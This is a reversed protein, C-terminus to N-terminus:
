NPRPKQQLADEIEKLLREVIDHWEARREPQIAPPFQGVNTLAAEAVALEECLELFTQDTELMRRVTFERGPFRRLVSSLTAQRNETPNKM